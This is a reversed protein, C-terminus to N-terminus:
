VKVNVYRTVACSIAASPFVIRLTAVADPFLRLLIGVFGPRSSTIAGISSSSGPIATTFSNDSTFSAGTGFAYM